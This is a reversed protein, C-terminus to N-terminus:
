HPRDMTYEIRIATLYLASISPISHISHTELVVYVSYVYQSNDIVADVITDDTKTRIHDSYSSSTASAMTTTLADTLHKRRLRATTDFNQLQDVYIYQFSTVVAGDPLNVPAHLFAFTVQELTNPIARLGLPSTIEVPDDTDKRRRFASPHLTVYRTVPQWRVDGAIDLKAGPSKTGIGVKGSNSVFVVDTPSGDAADLSHGDASSSTAATTQVTGDPFKFGGSLSEVTGNVSLKQGPAETGIGVKGDLKWTMLNNEAGGLESRIHLRNDTGTGASGEYFLSVARKDEESFLIKMDSGSVTNLHLRETPTSTGLGVASSDSKGLIIAGSDANLFLPSAGGNDRAMIENNDIVINKAGIAGITVFGGGSAKADSGGEVHLRTAPTASGIGVNGTDDVLVAAVPDGDAADLTNRSQGGQAGASITVNQGEVTLSINDGAKLTVADTLGNLSRVLSGRAISKGTIASDAVARSNLSYATATLEIRPLLERGNNVTIGLFYPRDFPLRLRKRSGLIASFLGNDVPVSDHIEKWLPEGGEATSYFQFTLRLGNSTILEGNSDTLVGQYSITQPIQAQTIGSLTFFIMLLVFSKKM